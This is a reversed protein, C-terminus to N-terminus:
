CIRSSGPTRSRWRGSACSRRASSRTSPSRSCGSASGGGLAQWPLRYEEGVVGAAFHAGLRLFPELQRAAKEPLRLWYTLLPLGTYRSHSRWGRRRTLAAQIRRLPVLCFWVAFFTQLAPDGSFMAAAGLRLLAWAGRRNYAEAGQGKRLFPYITTAHAFMLFRLVNFGDKASPNFGKEHQNV